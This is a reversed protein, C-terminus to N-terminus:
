MSAAKEIYGNSLCIDEEKQALRCFVNNIWKEDKLLSALKSECYGKLRLTKAFSIEANEIRRFVTRVSLNERQAIEKIKLCDIYKEILVAADKKSLTKLIDDILVKLNIITVKRQSLDIIKQSISLVNNYYYNQHSLFGSAIASRKVIKDIANSIRELYRYVSLITRTWIIENNMVYEGKLTLM